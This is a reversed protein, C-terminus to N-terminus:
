VEKFEDIAAVLSDDPIRQILVDVTSHDVTITISQINPLDNASVFGARVLADTFARATPIAM